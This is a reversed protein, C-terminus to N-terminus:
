NLSSFGKDFTPPDINPGDRGSQNIINSATNTIPTTTTSTEKKPLEYGAEIIANAIEQDSFGYANMSNYIALPQGTLAPGGM